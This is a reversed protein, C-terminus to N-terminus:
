HYAVSVSLWFEAFEYPRESGRGTRESHVLTLPRELKLWTDLISFDVYSNQDVCVLM